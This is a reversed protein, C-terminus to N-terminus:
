GYQAWIMVGIFCVVLVLMYWDNPDKDNWYSM